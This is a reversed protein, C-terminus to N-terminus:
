LGLLTNFVCIKPFFAIKGTFFLHQGLKQGVISHLLGRPVTGPPGFPTKVIVTSTIFDNRYCRVPQQFCM